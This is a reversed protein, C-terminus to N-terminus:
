QMEWAYTVPRLTKTEQGTTLSCIIYLLNEAPSSVIRESRSTCLLQSVEGLRCAYLAFPYEESDAEASLVTYLLQNTDAAFMFSNVEVNEQVTQIMAGTAPDMLVLDFRMDMEDIMQMQLVALTTGAADIRCDIGPGLPTRERTQLDLVYVTMDTQDAFYIKGNAYSIPSEAGTREEVSEVRPSDEARNFDYTLLELSEATGSMACIVNTHPLWLFSVTYDGFGEEGLNRLDGTQMDYVFLLKSEARADLIALYRGDPSVEAEQIDYFREQTVPTGPRGGSRMWLEEKVVDEADQGDSPAYPVAYYMIGDETQTLWVGDELLVPLELPEGNVEIVSVSSAMARSGMSEVPPLEDTRMSFVYFSDRPVTEPIQEMAEQMFSEAEVQSAFPKSILIRSSFGDCMTPAFGLTDPILGREFSSLANLGVYWATRAAVSRPTLELTLVSGSADCEVTVPQSLQLYVLQTDSGTLDCAFIGDVVSNAFVTGTSAYDSFGINLAIQIRAPDYLQTVSYTPVAALKSEDVGAHRSGNIFNLHVVTKDGQMEVSIERLNATEPLADDGGSMGAPTPTAPEPFEACATLMFLFAATLAAVLIRKGTRRSM